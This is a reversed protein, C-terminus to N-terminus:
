SVAWTEVVEAMKRCKTLHFIPPLGTLEIPQLLIVRMRVRLRHCVRRLPRHGGQRSCNGAAEHTNQRM